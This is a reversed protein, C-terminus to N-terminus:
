KENNTLFKILDYEFKSDIDISREIPMVHIGWNGEYLHKINLNERKWAFIAPTINYVKPADQRRHVVPDPLKILSYFNNSKKEIMNFYPNRDSEYVTVLTEMNPDNKLKIISKEIDSSNRLPAGIDLDVIIDPFFNRETEYFEVVHKIADIKPTNDQALETPRIYGHTAYGMEEAIQIIEPSDTSIAIEDILNCNKACDLTYKILPSGNLELFNKRLLGKSNERACVTALIKLKKM